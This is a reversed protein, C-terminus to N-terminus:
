EVIITGRPVGMACTITYSGPKTPTFALTTIKGKEFGQPNNDLGPIMISGMCGRGDEKAEVDFRVPSGAKVTFKTPKVDESVSYTAKIVQVTGEQAAEIPATKDADVAAQKQVKQGCGCGGGGGGCSGATNPSIAVTNAQAAQVADPTSTKSTPVDGDVVNFSGSYMGMSCTFRINGTETPTFEIINEGAELNKRIGLKPSVISAACSFANESTVIWKVPIGKKITFSNPSYGSSTQTMRVIQVGNEMTVNPDTQVSSSTNQNFFANVNIGSLNLGNSINFVAMFIVVLGAFKFFPKAFAGKIVSTLGGVGLLGPATGLAFIGMTFAGIIPSGSSIAFLQMAQTFGCPLFFTFAGLIFSNKHSYEKESQEKIGLARSIGKPLTFKLRSLRLFIETLQLGMLVMVGGVAITLLGLTTTSLQLFSGAYGIIGGLVFFSIIRGANFFLHPKFKQLTSAQPHKEVFRASAALILGGVLAMCTSIGATLGVLFVVPLSKYSGGANLSINFIGLENGILYLVVLILFAFGLDKYDQLNTSIFSKENNTGIAYGANCVAQGIKKHDLNGKYHIEAVGNKENVDVKKVGNIKMLEDEILIECSRCHMGKINVKIKNM